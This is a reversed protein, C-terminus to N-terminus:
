GCHGLLGFGHSVAARLVALHQAIMTELSKDIVKQQDKQARRHVPEAPPPDPPIKAQLRGHLDLLQEVDTAEAHRLISATTRPSASLWYCGESVDGTGFEDVPNEAIVRALGRDLHRRASSSLHPRLASLSEAAAFYQIASDSRWGFDSCDLGAIGPITESGDEDKWWLFYEQATRFRTLRRRNWNFPDLTVQM